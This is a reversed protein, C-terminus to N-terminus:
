TSRAAAKVRMKADYIEHSGKSPPPNFHLDYKMFVKVLYVGRIRCGQGASHFGNDGFQWGPDLQNRGFGGINLVKQRHMCVIM